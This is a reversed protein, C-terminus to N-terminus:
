KGFAERAFRGYFTECGEVRDIFSRKWSLKFLTTDAVLSEWLNPDYPENILPVLDDCRPNNCPVSDFIRRAEIDHRVLFDILYDQTLYDVLRKSTRWYEIFLDRVAAFIWRNGYSCGLAYTAFNGCAVSRHGYEPRKITFLPARLVADELPRVCYMTADLWLGGHRALVDLRLLDSMHTRSIIGENYRDIIWGPLSSYDSYNDETLVVLHGYGVNRDISDICARTITPANDVGQWWCVWVAPNEEIFSDGISLNISYTNWFSELKQDFYARMAEHKRMLLDIDRREEFRGSRCLEQILVKGLFTDAAGGFGRSKGVEITALAEEISRRAIHSARNLTNVAM